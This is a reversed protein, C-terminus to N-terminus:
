ATKKRRMVMLMGIAGIGFLAYTSPEPVILIGVGSGSLGSLYVSSVAEPTIKLISDGYTAFINNAGDIAIGDLYNGNYNGASWFTSIVGNPAIRSITPTADGYGQNSVYLNGISDFALGTPAAIGGGSAFTTVTGNTTIKYINGFAYNVGYLNGSQDFALGSGGGDINAYVSVLGNTSLKLISSAETWNYNQIYLNSNTDFALASPNNLLGGSLIVSSSGSSLIKTISNNRDNASYINGLSDSAISYGEYSSYTKYNNVIGNENAYSISGNPTTTFYISAAGCNVDILGVAVFLSLILKKM